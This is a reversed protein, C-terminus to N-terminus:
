MSGKAPAKVDKWYQMVIYSVLISGAMGELFLSAVAKWLDMKGAWLVGQTFHSLFQTDIVRVYIIFGIISLVVSLANALFLSVLAEPYEAHPKDQLNRKALRNTFFVVIAINVVRLGAVQELGSLKMLMFFAAIGLFIYAGFKLTNTRVPM